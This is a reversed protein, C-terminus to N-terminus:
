GMEKRNLKDQFDSHGFAFSTCFNIFRYYNYSVDCLIYVTQVILYPFFIM